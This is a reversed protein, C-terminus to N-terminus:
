PSGTPTRDGTAREAYPLGACVTVTRRDRGDRAPRCDPWRSSTAPRTPWRASRTAAASRRARGGAALLEQVQAVTTPRPVRAAGFTINGAWNTLTM